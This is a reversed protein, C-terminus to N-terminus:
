QLSERKLMDYCTFFCFYPPSWVQIIRKSTTWCTRSKGFDRGAPTALSLCKGQTYCWTPGSTTEVAWFDPIIVLAIKTREDIDSSWTSLCRVTSKSRCVLSLWFALDPDDIGARPVSDYAFGHSKVWSSYFFKFNLFFWKWQLIWIIDFQM